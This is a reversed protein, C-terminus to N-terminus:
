CASNEHSAINPKYPIELTFTAGLGLGESYVHLAGGIERAALAGSHLGFGHGNKRTTFGHNFIRTLNQAPIGVGNDIIAIKVGREDSTTRVTILKDTRGSEDCAYKANRVLNILIQMVKHKDTTVVPRSQYDRRTDVDHRALSGSNIRLADELMDPVSITETVGATGAYTQQMAVIDKIHGVNKRLYELEELVVKHETSLAEAMKGLYDPIMQGRVDNTLFDVLDTKHQDLLAALKAVNVGKTHRVHDAVLTASVNVSNLVNGVNHLVGTAVEAMGALRSTELLQQHAKELEAEARKRATVDRFNIVAGVTEGAVYQPQVYREFTRGDKLEVVDFTEAGRNSYLEKIRQAFLDPNRVQSVLFGMIEEGSRRELLASPTGWMVAFKSNYCVVQGSLNVALIGDATSDLTANLMALSTALERTNEAIRDAMLDFAGAVQALEDKGVIGTRAALNGSAFQRTTSVLGAVRRTLNFHIFIWACSALGGFVLTNDLAQRGTAQFARAEAVEMDFVLVLLGHRIPRLAHADVDVLLPYYAVAVQRDKSLLITGRTTARVEAIHTAYEARLDEPLDIGIANASRGITAGRTAALIRDRGDLVYAAMMENRTATASVTLNVASTDGRRIYYELSAQLGTIRFRAEDLFQAEIEGALLRSNLKWSILGAVAACSLLLLPLLVRLPLSRLTKM